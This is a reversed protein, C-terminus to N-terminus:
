KAVMFFHKERERVYGINIVQLFLMFLYVM